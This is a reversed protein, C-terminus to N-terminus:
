RGRAGRRGGDGRGRPVGGRFRGGNGGNGQQGGVGVRLGELVQEAAEIEEALVAELFGLGFGDGIPLFDDVVGEGADIV